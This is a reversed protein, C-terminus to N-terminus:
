SLRSNRLPQRLSKAVQVEVRAHHVTRHRQRAQLAAHRHGLLGRDFVQRLAQHDVNDLRVRNVMFVGQEIRKSPM